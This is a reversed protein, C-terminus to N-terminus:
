DLPVKSVLILECVVKDLDRSCDEVYTARQGCGEAIMIGRGLHGAPPHGAQVHRRRIESPACHLNISGSEVLAANAGEPTPPYIKGSVSQYPVCGGLLLVSAILWTRWM